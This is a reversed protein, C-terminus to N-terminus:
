FSGSPLLLSQGPAEPSAPPPPEGDDDDDDDGNGDSGGDDGGNDSLASLGAAAAGAGLLGWLGSGMGYGAGGGGGGLGLGPGGAGPFGGTSGFPMMPSAGARRDDFPPIPPGMGFDRRLIVWLQGFQEPGLLGLDLALGEPAPALNVAATRFTGRRGIAAARGMEAAEVQIGFAAFGEMGAAVLSYFGPKFDPFEFMGLENVNSQGVVKDDQIMFVNLRRVRLPRGSEQHIRRVRGILRGDPQLHVTHQRITTAAEPAADDPLGGPPVVKEAANDQDTEFARAEAPIEEAPPEILEATPAMEPIYLRILRKLANFSTPPVALSDVTLVAEVEQLMVPRFRSSGTAAARGGPGAAAPGMVQITYALFGDEGAAVLSYVSPELGRVTFVGSEDPEARQAVSDGRLFNVAAKRLALFDGSAPDFASLKGELVGDANLRVRHSRLRQGLGDAGPGVQRWSEQYDDRRLPRSVSPQRAEALPDASGDPTTAGELRPGIVPTEGPAPEAGNLGATQLFIVAAAVLAHITVIRQM